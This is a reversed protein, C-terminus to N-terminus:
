CQEIKKNIVPQIIFQILSKQLNNVLLESINHEKTFNATTVSDRPDYDIFIM